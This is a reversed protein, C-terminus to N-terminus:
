ATAARPIGRMSLALLSTAVVAQVVLVLTAFAALDNATSLVLPEVLAVAGLVPVFAARGLALMYQVALCALALLAMALALAPLQDAAGALESGFALKLVTGPVICFLALLPACLSAVVLVARELAVRPPLGAAARRAAEPLLYLGVGIAIWVLTKAALAAAAYAGAASAGLEHRVLIVDLNQVLALLTLGAVVLKLEGLLERMRRTAAGAPSGEARRHLVLAFAGAVAALSLPTAVFAGTVGAGALVLAVAIAVRAIGELVISRGVAAYAGMGQLAGRQISVLMWLGITPLLSAAAWEQSVGLLDALPQRVVVGLAALGVCVLALNRSWARVTAGALRGATADRATAVQLACGPIALIVFASLLAALSGFDAAGLLRALTFAFVAGIAHGALTVAAVAAARATDSGGLIAGLAPRRTGAERRLAALNQEAPRDWTFEHARREAAAGLRELLEPQEVLERVRRCLEEPQEALIGTEGDVISESLGGVALAASPTGCLAAEMVTLSWGESSSATLAVWARGYLETKTQEDVFGHMEVRATLGRREIEAELEERHDGDGAIDLTAAPIAELVDLVNEIRKYAKLRGLYLLRPEPSRQGPHFPGPEVGLYAVSVNEAPIGVEVLDELASHSITLFPANRYLYRLPFAELAWALFRGFRPGFENIYLDTHVHHVLAVRPKRLWLPTLYTIGNIVELVVDANRGVGRLVTWLTRPFVSARGGMRHVVLNPALQEVAKAGPYSGTVMTVHHGWAVWRAIQAYLNTGNGGGQPHTWDRDALVLIRLPNPDPDM